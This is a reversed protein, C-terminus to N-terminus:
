SMLTKDELLMEKAKAQIQLVEPATFGIVFLGRVM